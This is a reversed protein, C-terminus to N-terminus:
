MNDRKVPVIEKQDQHCDWAKLKWAAILFDGVMVTYWFELWLFMTPWGFTIPNAVCYDNVLYVIPPNVMLVSIVLVVYFLITGKSLNKM